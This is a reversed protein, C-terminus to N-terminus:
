GNKHTAAWEEIIVKMPKHAKFAIRRLLEWTRLSVRIGKTPAAKKKTM